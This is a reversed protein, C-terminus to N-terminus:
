KGKNKSVMKTLTQRCWEVFFGVVMVIIVCAIWHGLQYVANNKGKVSYLGLWEFWKYRVLIHEHLLYVGLTLPGLIRAVDAIKSNENLKMNKFAYFLGIAAVAVFIHNYDYVTDALHGFTEIGTAEKLLSGAIGTACILISAVIYTLLGRISKGEFFHIGYLRIYAAILFLVIFWGFDYGARDIPLTMPLVTKELCMFGLLALVIIRLTKESINKIGAALVPSLLYMVFYATIFWYNETGVPFIYSALEYVSFDSIHVAGCIFMGVTILVSYELVQILLGLLRKPKFEAEVLFYGSIIVYVDVACISLATVFWMILNAATMNEAPNQVVEGKFMYHLTVIMAMALVRLWEFNSQRKTDM